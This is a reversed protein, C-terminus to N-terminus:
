AVAVLTGVSTEWIRATAARGPDWAPDAVYWRWGDWRRVEWLFGLPTVPELEILLRRVRSWDAELFGRGVIAGSM